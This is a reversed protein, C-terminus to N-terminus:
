CNCRAASKVSRRAARHVPRTKKYRRAKHVAVPADVYEIQKVITPTTTTTITETMTYGGFGQGGSSYGGGYPHDYPYDRDYDIDRADGYEVRRRDDGYGEDDGYDDDYAYDDDHGYGDHRGRDSYVRDPYIPDRRYDRTDFRDRMPMERGVMAHAGPRKIRVEPLPYPGDNVIMGRGPAAAAPDIGALGAAVAIVAIGFNRM